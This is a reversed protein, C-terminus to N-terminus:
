PGQAPQELKFVGNGDGYWACYLTSPHQPDLAMGWVIRAQDSGPKLPLGDSMAVWHEGGDPSKFVGYSATGAYLIQPHHPDIVLCYVCAGATLGINSAAWHKGADSSKYVGGGLTGVYVIDTQVPDVALCFAMRARDLRNNRGLDMIPGGKLGVNAAVWNQGGDISKWVGCRFEQENYTALYVTDPHKPDLALGPISRCGGEPQGKTLRFCDQGGNTSKFIGADTGLYLRQSDRPDIAISCGHHLPKKNVRAWHQGGDTSKYFGDGENGAYVILHNAPDIAVRNLKMVTIGQNISSWNVGGDISKFVGKGGETGNSAAYIIKSNSPDVAVSVIGAVPGHSRWRNAMAAQSTEAARASVFAALASVAVGAALITRVVQM